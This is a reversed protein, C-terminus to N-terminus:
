LQPGHFIRHEIRPVGHFALLDSTAAKDKSIAKATASNIDFDYGVVYTTAGGRQFCFIWDDSFATMRIGSEAAVEKLLTSLLRDTNLMAQHHRKSTKRCRPPNSFLSVLSSAGVGHQVCSVGDLM